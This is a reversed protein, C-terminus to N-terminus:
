VLGLRPVDDDHVWELGDCMVCACVGFLCWDARSRVVDLLM